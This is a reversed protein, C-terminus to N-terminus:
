KNDNEIEKVWDKIEVEGQELGNKEMVDAILQKARKLSLPSKVKFVLPIEAYTGKNGADAIPLTSSAYDQPNLAYYLKLSKGAITIKVFTVAHLRFTDGSNSVRSHVGYSMIESKLENFNAKMEPEAEVIRTTFPIRIIKPKSEDEVEEVIEEIVEEVVEEVPEEVVPEEQPVVEPQVEEVAEEHIVESEIPENSDVMAEQQGNVVVKITPMKVIVPQQEQVVPAAPRMRALEEQIIQRVEDASIGQPKKDDSLVEREIPQPENSYLDKNVYAKVEEKSMYDECGCTCKHHKHDNFYQVILPGNYPQPKEEVQPVPTPEKNEPIYSFAPTDFNDVYSRDTKAICVFDVFALVFGCAASIFAFLGSIFLLAFGQDAFPYYHLLIHPLMIPGAVMALAAAILYIFMAFLGGPRRKVIILIIWAIVFIISVICIIWSPLAILWSNTTAYFEPPFSYEIMPLYTQNNFIFGTKFIPDISFEYLFAFFNGPAGSGDSYHAFPGLHFQTYYFILGLAITVLIFFTTILTWIVAGVKSVKM